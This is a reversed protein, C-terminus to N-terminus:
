YKFTVDFSSDEEEGRAFFNKKLGEKGLVIYDLKPFLCSSALLCQDPGQSCTRPKGMLM